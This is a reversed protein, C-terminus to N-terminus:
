ISDSCSAGAGAAETGAGFYGKRLPIILSRKWNDMDPGEPHGQSGPIMEMGFCNKDDSSFELAQSDPIGVRKRGTPGDYDIGLKGDLLAGEDERQPV